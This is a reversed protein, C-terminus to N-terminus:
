LTPGSASVPWRAVRYSVILSASERSDPPDRAERGYDPLALNASWGPTSRSREVTRRRESGRRLLKLFRSKASQHVVPSPSHYPNLVADDLNLVLAIAYESFMKRGGQDIRASNRKPRKEESIEFDVAVLRVAARM